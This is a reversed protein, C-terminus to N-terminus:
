DVTLVSNLSGMDNVVWEHCAPDPCWVGDIIFKYEHRGKPVLLVAEYMGDKQKLPNKGPDWGNFTGAVYVACAGNAEIAFTTRKRDSRAKRAM